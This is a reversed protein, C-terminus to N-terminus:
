CGALAQDAADAATAEDKAIARLREAYDDAANRALQSESQYGPPEIENPLPLEEDLTPDFSENLSDRAQLYATFGALDRAIAKQRGIAGGLADAFALVAKKQAANPSSDAARRLAAIDGEGRRVEEALKSAEAAMQAIAHVHHLRNGDDLPAIRVHAITDTLDRDGQLAVAIAGNANRVIATCRPSSHVVGITKLHAPPPSPTAAIM